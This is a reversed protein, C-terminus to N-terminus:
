KLLNSNVSEMTRLTLCASGGGEKLSFQTEFLSLSRPAVTHFFIKIHLTTNYTAIHCDDVCFQVSFNSHPECFISFMVIEKSLWLEKHSKLSLRGERVLGKGCNPTQWCIVVQTKLKQASSILFFYGEIKVLIPLFKEQFSIWARNGLIVSKELFLFFSIPVQEM